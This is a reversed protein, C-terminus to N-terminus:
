IVRRQLTVPMQYVGVLSSFKAQAKLIDVFKYEIIDETGGNSDVVTYGLPTEWLEVVRGDKLTQTAFLRSSVMELLKEAKTVM